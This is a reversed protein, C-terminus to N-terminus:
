KGEASDWDLCRCSLLGEGAKPLPLVFIVGSGGSGSSVFCSEATFGAEGSSPRWWNGELRILRGGAIESLKSSLNWLMTQSSIVTAGRLSEESRTRPRLSILQFLAHVQGGGTQHGGLPVQDDSKM